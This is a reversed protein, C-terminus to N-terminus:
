VRYQPSQELVLTKAAYDISLRTHQLVDFGIVGDIQADLRDSIATLETAVPTLDNLRVPGLAFTNVRVTDLRIEGGAGMGPCSTGTRVLGLRDVADNSLVTSGAGTDLIMSVDSGDLEADVVILNNQLRFDIPKM